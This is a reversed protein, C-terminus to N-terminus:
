FIVDPIASLVRNLLQAKCLPSEFAVSSSKIIAPMISLASMRLTTEPIGAIAPLKLTIGPMSINNGQCRYAGTNRRERSKDARDSRGKQQRSGGTIQQGAGQGSSSEKRSRGEQRRRAQGKAAVCRSGRRKKESEITTNM